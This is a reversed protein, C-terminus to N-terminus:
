FKPWLWAGGSVPAWVPLIPNPNLTQSVWVGFGLIWVGFGLGLARFGM